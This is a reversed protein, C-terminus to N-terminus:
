ETIKMLSKVELTWGTKAALGSRPYIRGFTSKPLQIKLGSSLLCRDHARVTISQASKLDLGAAYQSGKEPITAFEDSKVVKLVN